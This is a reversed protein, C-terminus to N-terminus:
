SREGGLATGITLVGIRHIYTEVDIKSESASSRQDQREGMLPLDYNVVMNVQPIDIGRAVVNTTILVKEKGERFGDIVRDRDGAEKAGHLSAVRHGDSTMRRAIEDATDRRTCFIISQGVTLCKYLSVLVEYKKSADGCDMYLQRISDVAIENRKLEIKNADPAFKDAFHRVHEPFTASFLVIQVGRKPLM